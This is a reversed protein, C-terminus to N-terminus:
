KGKNLSVVILYQGEFNQKFLNKTNTHKKLIKIANDRAKEDTGFGIEVANGVVQSMTGTLDNGDVQSIGWQPYSSKYQTYDFVTYYGGFPTKDAWRELYPGSWSSPISMNTVGNSNYNKGTIFFAEGVENFVDKNIGSFTYRPFRGVDSYYMLSAKKIADVDSSFAAAKSKEIAKFSNPVIVAALIAIIAIVVLLEVLTFGRKNKKFNM